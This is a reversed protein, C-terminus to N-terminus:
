VARGSSDALNKNKQEIRIRRYIEITVYSTIFAMVTSYVCATFPLFGHLGLPHTFM